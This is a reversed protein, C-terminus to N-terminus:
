VDGMKILPERLSDQTSNDPWVPQETDDQQTPEETSSSEEVLASDDQSPADSFRYLILGTMIVALGLLDSGHLTASQPMFPLSFALNGVPPPPILSIIM